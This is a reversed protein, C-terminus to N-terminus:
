HGEFTFAIGTTARDFSAGIKSGSNKAKEVFFSLFIHSFGLSSDLRSAAAPEMWNLLFSVSGGTVMSNRTGTNAFAGETSDTAVKGDKAESVRAEQFYLRETGAWGNLQLYKNFVNVSALAVAQGATVNLKTRGNPDKTYEGTERNCRLCPSGNASYYSTRFGVGLNLFALRVPLWDVAFYPGVKEKGYLESYGGLSSFKPRHGGIRIAYASPSWYRRNTTDSVKEGNNDKADSPQQEQAYVSGGLALLLLTILLRM